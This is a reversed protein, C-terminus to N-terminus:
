ISAWESFLDPHDVAAARMRAKTRESVFGQKLLRGLDRKLEWFRRKTPTSARALAAARGANALQLLTSSPQDGGNALNLLLGIPRHEAILRREDEQWNQSDAILVRMAPIGHKRIWAYLPTNRRRSDRMHSRLRKAPDNAKGIYRLAGSADYLGYICVM